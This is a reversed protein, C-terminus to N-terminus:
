TLASNNATVLMTTTAEASMLALPLPPVHRTVGGRIGSNTQNLLIKANTTANMLTAGSLTKILVRAIEMCLETATETLSAAANATVTTVVM